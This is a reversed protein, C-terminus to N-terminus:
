RTVRDKEQAMGLVVETAMVPRRHQVFKAYAYVVPEETAPSDIKRKAIVIGKFSTPDAIQM